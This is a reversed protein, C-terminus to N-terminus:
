EQKAPRESAAAQLFELARMLQAHRATPAVAKGSFLGGAAMVPKHTAVRYAGYAAMAGPGGGAMAGGGATAAGILNTLRTPQHTAEELAQTLGILAQTQKNSTSIDTVGVDEANVEIAKRYAAAVKKDALADLDKIQAGREQARYASDAKMQAQQKIKNSTVLNSGTPNRAAMEKARQSIDQREDPGGLRYKLGAKQAPEKLAPIVQRKVDVPKAGRADAEQLLAETNAASSELATESRALGGETPLVNRKFGEDMAGPFSRNIRRSPNVAATYLAKGGSEAVRAPIALPNLAESAGGLVRATKTLGGAKTAMTAGGFLLSLDSAVGVPDTYATNLFADISGYRKLLAAKTQRGVSAPDNKLQSALASLAEFTDKPHLVPSVVDKGFQLGSTVVNGLFGRTSPLENSSTSPVADGANPDTSLYDYKGAAYDNHLQAAYANAEAVTKFRGLHRGTKNYEAVIENDTKLHRGDPTVSPLLVEMGDINYSRSDVTSTSGDANKVKPQAYLDVNGSLPTGANPDMSLYGSQGM